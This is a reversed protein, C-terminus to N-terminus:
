PMDYLRRYRGYTETTVEGSDCILKLWQDPKFMFEDGKEIKDGEKLYYHYTPPQNINEVEAVEEKPTYPMKHSCKGDYDCYDTNRDDMDGIKYGACRIKDASCKVKVEIEKTSIDYCYRYTQCEKCKKDLCNNEHKSQHPFENYYYM